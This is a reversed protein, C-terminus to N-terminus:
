TESDSNKYLYLQAHSAKWGVRTKYVQSSLQRGVQNSLPHTEGCDPEIHTLELFRKKERFKSNESKLDQMNHDQQTTQIYNQMSEPQTGKM